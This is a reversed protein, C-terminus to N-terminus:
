YVTNHLESKHTKGIHIKLGKDTKFCLECESCKFLKAEEIDSVLKDKSKHSDDTVKVTDELQDKQERVLKMKAERRMQSPSKKKKKFVLIKVLDKNCFNFNDQGISLSLSFKHNSSTLAQCFALCKKAIDSEMKRHWRCM